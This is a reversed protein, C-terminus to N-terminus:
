WLVTVALGAVAKFLAGTAKLDRVASSIKPYNIPLFSVQNLLWQVLTRMRSPRCTTESTVVDLNRQLGGEKM